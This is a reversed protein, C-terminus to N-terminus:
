LLIFVGAWCVEHLSLNLFLKRLLLLWCRITHSYSKWQQKELLILTLSNMQTASNDQTSSIYQTLFNNSEKFFEFHQVWRSNLIIWSNSKLSNSLDFIRAGKIIPVTTLFLYLFKFTQEGWTQWLNYRHSSNKTYTIGGSNNYGHM